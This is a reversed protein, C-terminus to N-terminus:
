GTRNGIIEPNRKHHLVAIIEIPRDQHLYKFYISYPFRKIFHRSLGNEDKSFTRFSKSIYDFGKEVFLIFDVGLGPKQMEYWIFAEDMDAEADDSINFELYKV